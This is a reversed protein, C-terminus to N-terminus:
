TKLANQKRQKTEIQQANNKVPALNQLFRSSIWVCSGEVTWTESCRLKGPVRLSFNLPTMIATFGSQNPNFFFGGSFCVFCVFFCFNAVLGPTLTTAVCTIKDYKIKVVKTQNANIM